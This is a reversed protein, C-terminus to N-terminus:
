RSLRGFVISTSVVTLRATGFWGYATPTGHGDTTFLITGTGFGGDGPYSRTDDQHPVSTADTIRVTYAGYLGPVARPTERVFGVHGTNRRPWDAPRLWAFVDGPRVSEIHDIRRWGRRARDTPARAIVGYFDRAVPRDRGLARLAAPASRKLMWAAMGSCDWGYSGERERVRTTHQYRTERLNARVREIVELVRTGADNAPGDDEGPQVQALAPAAFAMTLSLLLAARM